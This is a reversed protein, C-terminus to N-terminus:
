KVELAANRAQINDLWRDWSMKLFQELDQLQELQHQDYVSSYGAQEAQVIKTQLAMAAWQVAFYWPSLKTNDVQTHTFTEMHNLLLPGAQGPKGKANCL